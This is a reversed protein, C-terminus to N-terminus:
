GIEMGLAEVLEAIVKARDEPLSSLYGALTPHKEQTEMKSRYIRMMWASWRTTM